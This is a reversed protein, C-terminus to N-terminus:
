YDREMESTTVLFNPFVDFLRLINHGPNYNKNRAQSQCPFLCKMVKNKKWLPHNM